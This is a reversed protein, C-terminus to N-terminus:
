VNKERRYNIYLLTLIIIMAPLIFNEGFIILSTVSAGIGLIAPFHDRTQKWQSLFIVLFLATLIFDIGKIEFNIFNGLIGGLMTGIFWYSQLLILISLYFDGAAMDKPLETGMIMSYGEDCLAYNAYIKKGEKMSKFKELCTLAYFFHRINMMVIILAFSLLDMGAHMAEVVVFQISGSFILLSTLPAMWFDYGFSSSYIGLSLGIFLYSILIPITLPFVRKLNKIM